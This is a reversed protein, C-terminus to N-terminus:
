RTAVTLFSVAPVPHDHHRDKVQTRTRGRTRPEISELNEVRGSTECFFPNDWFRLLPFLVSETRRTPLPASRRQNADEASVAANIIATLTGPPTDM